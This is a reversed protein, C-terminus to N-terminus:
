QNFTKNYRFLELKNINSNFEKYNGLNQSNNKFRFIYIFAIIM